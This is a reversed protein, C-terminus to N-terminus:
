GHPAPGILAAANATHLHARDRGARADPARRRHLTRPSRAHPPQREARLGSLPPDRAGRGGPSPRRAPDHRTGPEALRGSRRVRGGRHPEDTAEYRAVAVLEPTEGATEAVLAMRRRYDVNALIHAWDPPLRRMITFFRQYATQRSLRDYLTSLRAEDDSAIPRIRLRAGDELIIERELDRPYTVPGTMAGVM